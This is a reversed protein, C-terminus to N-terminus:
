NGRNSKKVFLRKPLFVIAKNIENETILNLLRIPTFYVLASVGVILGIEILPSFRLLHIIFAPIIM